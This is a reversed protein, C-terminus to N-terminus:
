AGVSRVFKPSYAFLAASHSTLRGESWTPRRSEITPSEVEVGHATRVEWGVLAGHDKLAAKFTTSVL